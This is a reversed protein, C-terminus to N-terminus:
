SSEEQLSVCSNHDDGESDKRHEEGKQGHAERDGSHPFHVGSRAVTHESSGGMKGLRGTTLSISLQSMSRKTLRPTERV